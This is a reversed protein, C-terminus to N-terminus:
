IWKAAMKFKTFIPGFRFHGIQVERGAAVGFSNM